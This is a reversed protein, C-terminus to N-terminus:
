RNQADHTHGKHIESPGQMEHSGALQKLSKSGCIASLPIVVLSATSLFQIVITLHANVRDRFSTM